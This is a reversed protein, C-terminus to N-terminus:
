MLSHAHQSKDVFNFFVIKLAKYNKKFNFLFSKSDIDSNIFEFIHQFFQLYAILVTLNGSFISGKAVYSYLTLYWVGDYSTVNTQCKQQYLTAVGCHVSTGFYDLFSLSVCKLLFYKDCIYSELPHISCFPCEINEFTLVHLYYQM